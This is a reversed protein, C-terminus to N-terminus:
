RKSRYKDIFYWSIELWSSSVENCQIFYVFDSLVCSIFTLIEAGAAISHSWNTTIWHFRHQLILSDPFSLRWREKLTELICSPHCRIWYWFFGWYFCKWRYVFIIYSRGTLFCVWIWSSLFLHSWAVLFIHVAVLAYVADESLVCSMLYLSTLFM